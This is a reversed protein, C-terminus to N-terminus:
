AALAAMVRWREARSHDPGVLARLTDLLGCCGADMSHTNAVDFGSVAVANVEPVVAALTAGPVVPYRDMMVGEFDGFTVDAAKPMPRPRELATGPDPRDVFLDGVAALFIPSM